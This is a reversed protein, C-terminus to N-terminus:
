QHGGVLRNGRPPPYLRRGAALGRYDRPYQRVVPPLDATKRRLGVGIMWASPNTGSLPFLGDPRLVLADTSIGDGPTVWSFVAVSKRGGQDFGDSRWQGTTDGGAHGAVTGNSTAIAMVASDLPTAGSGVAWPNAYGAGSPDYLDEGGTTTAELVADVNRYIVMQISRQLFPIGGFPYEATIGFNYSGVGALSTVDIPVWCYGMWTLPHPGDNTSTTGATGLTYLHGRQHGTGDDDSPTPPYYGTVSVVILDDTLIGIPVQWAPQGSAAAVRTLPLWTVV